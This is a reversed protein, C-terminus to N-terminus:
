FDDDAPAGAAATPVPQPPPPPPPAVAEPAPRQRGSPANPEDHGYTGYTGAGVVDTFVVGVLHIGLRQVLARLERAEDRNARNRRVVLVVGDVMRAVELADAVVLLPPSDVLVYDHSVALRDLLEQMRQSSLLESPNPPLPGSPLFSIPLPGDNGTPVVVPQVADELQSAGVLVGTLGPGDTAAQFAVDLRPRRLDCEVAVTSAGSRAIALALNATVTTKGQEASASTILITRLPSQVSLYQLNARLARYSEAIEGFGEWAVARQGKRHRQFPVQGIVPVGFAAEVEERTRVARDFHDRLFAALLGLVVGLIAAIVIDRAPKPSVKGPLVHAPDFISASLPAQAPTGPTAPEPTTGFRKKVEQVFVTGIEANIKRATEPDHNIVVLRLVLTQPNISVQANSLLQQPTEALHLRQIVAAAVINSQLLDGMTAVFPQVSNGFGVNVFTKGQTIVIKSDAEYKAPQTFALAASVGIAVAVV